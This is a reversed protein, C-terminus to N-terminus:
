SASARRPGVAVWASAISALVAAARMLPGSLWAVRTPLSLDDGDAAVILVTAIDASVLLTGYVLLLAGVMALLLMRLLISRARFPRRDAVVGIAVALASVLVIELAIAALEEAGGSNEVFEMFDWAFVPKILYWDVYVFWPSAFSALGLCCLLVLAKTLAFRVVDIAMM